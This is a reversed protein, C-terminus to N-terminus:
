VKPARLCLLTAVKVPSFTTIFHYLRMKNFPESNKLLFVDPHIDM